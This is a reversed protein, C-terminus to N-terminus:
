AIIVYHQFAIHREERIRIEISSSLGFDPGQLYCRLREDRAQPHLTLHSQLPESDRM